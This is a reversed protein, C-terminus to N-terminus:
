IIELNNLKMHYTQLFICVWIVSLTGSLYKRIEKWMSINSSGLDYVLAVVIYVYLGAEELLTILIKTMDTMDFDYLIACNSPM